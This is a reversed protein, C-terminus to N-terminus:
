VVKVRWQPEDRNQENTTVAAGVCRTALFGDPAARRAKVEVRVKPTTEAVSVSPFIFTEANAEDTIDTAGRFFRVRLEPDDFVCPELKFDAPGVDGTNTYRVYFIATEGQHIRAKVTQDAGTENTVGLGVFDGGKKKIEGDVQPNNGALARGALAGLLILVGIVPIVRRLRTM